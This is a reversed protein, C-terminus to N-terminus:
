RASTNTDYGVPIRTQPIIAAPLRINAFLSINTKQAAFRKSGWSFVPRESEPSLQRGISRFSLDGEVMRQGM